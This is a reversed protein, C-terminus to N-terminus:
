YLQSLDARMKCVTAEPLFQALDSLVDVWAVTTGHKRMAADLLDQALTSENQTTAFTNLIQKYNKM